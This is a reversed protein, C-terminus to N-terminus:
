SIHEPHTNYNRNRVILKNKGNYVGNSDVRAKNVNAAIKSSFYQAFAGAHCGPDITQGGVTLNTPIANPILDNAVGVARWIGQSSGNVFIRVKIRKKAFHINKISKNLARIEELHVNNRNCKEIRTTLRFILYLGDSSVLM